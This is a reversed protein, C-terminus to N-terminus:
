VGVIGQRLYTIRDARDLQGCREGHDGYGEHIHEDVDSVVRNNVFLLDQTTPPDNRRQEKTLQPSQPRFPHTSMM